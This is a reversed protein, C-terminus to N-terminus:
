SLWSMLQFSWCGFLHYSSFKIVQFSGVGLCIIVQYSSFKVVWVGLFKVVRFSSLEIVQYSSCGFVQFVGFSSLKIVKVALCGLCWSSSCGFVWVVVSTEVLKLAWQTAM